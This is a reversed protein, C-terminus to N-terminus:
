IDKYLKPVFSVRIKCSVGASMRGPLRDLPDLFRLEFFDKINDDFPLVKFQNFTLSVNTM